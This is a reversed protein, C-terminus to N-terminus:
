WWSIVFGQAYPLTRLFRATYFWLSGAFTLDWAQCLTM